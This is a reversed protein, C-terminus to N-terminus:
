GSQRSITPGFSPYYNNGSARSIWWSLLYLVANIPILAGPFVLIRWNVVACVLIAVLAIAAGVFERKWALLLGVLSVVLTALIVYDSWALPRSARGQDGILHAVLFFGFFVVILGSLIRASWRVLAVSSM